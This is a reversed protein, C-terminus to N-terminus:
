KRRKQIPADSFDGGCLQAIEVLSQAHDSQARLTALSFNLYINQAELIGLFTSQGDRYGNEAITMSHRAQPLLSKRYLEVLRQANKAKYYVRKLQAALRNEMEKKMATVSQWDSRAERVQADKKPFWLPLTLDSSCM